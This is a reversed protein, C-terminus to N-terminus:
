MCYLVNLPMQPSRPPSARIFVGLLVDGYTLPAPAIARFNQIMSTMGPAEGREEVVKSDGQQAKGAAGAFFRAYTSNKFICTAAEQGADAAERSDDAHVHKGVREQCAEAHAHGGFSGQQM